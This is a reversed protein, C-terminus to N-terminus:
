FQHSLAASLLQTTFRRSPLTSDADRFAYYVELALHELLEYAALATLEHRDDVRGFNRDNPDGTDYDRLRFRYRFSLYWRLAPVSRVKAYLETQSHNAAEQQAARRGSLFGIEPSFEHGAGRYRVGGGFGTTTNDKGQSRDFSQSQVEALGKLEWDDTIRYGYGANFRAIEAVDFEDDVELTPRSQETGVFLDVSHRRIESRLGGGFADGDGSEKWFSRGSTRGFEGYILVARDSGVRVGVRAMVRAALNTESVGEPVPFVEEPLLGNFSVEGDLREELTQLIWEGRDEDRLDDQQQAVATGSLVALTYAAAVLLRAKKM